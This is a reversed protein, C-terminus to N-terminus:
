RCVFPASPIMGLFQPLCTACEKGLAVCICCSVPFGKCILPRKGLMDFAEQPNSEAM